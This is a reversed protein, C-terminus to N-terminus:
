ENKTIKLKINEQCYTTQTLATSSSNMKNKLANKKFNEIQSSNNKM